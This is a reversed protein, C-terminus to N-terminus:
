PTVKGQREAAARLKAAADLYADAESAMGRGAAASALRLWFDAAAELGARVASRDDEGRDKSARFAVAACHRAETALASM